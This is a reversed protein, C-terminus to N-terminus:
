VSYIFNCLVPRLQCIMMTMVMMGNHFASLIWPMSGQLNAFILTFCSNPKLPFWEDTEDATRHDIQPIGKLLFHLIVGANKKLWNYLGAWHLSREDRETVQFSPRVRTIWNESHVQGNHGRSTEIRLHTTQMDVSKGVSTKLGLSEYASKFAIAVWLSWDLLKWLMPTSWPAYWIRQENMWAKKEEKTGKVSQITEMFSWNEQGAPQSSSLLSQVFFHIFLPSWPQHSCTCTHLYVVVVVQTDISLHGM